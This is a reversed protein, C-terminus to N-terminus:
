TVFVSPLNSLMFIRASGRRSRPEIATAPSVIFKRTATPLGTVYGIIAEGPTAPKDASVLRITPLMSFSV